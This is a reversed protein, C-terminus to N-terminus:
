DELKISQAVATLAKESVLRYCIHEQGSQDADTYVLVDVGRAAAADRFAKRDAPAEDADWDYGECKECVLDAPMEVAWMVDGYQAANDRDATLCFDGWETINLETRHTGHYLM